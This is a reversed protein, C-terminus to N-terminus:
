MRCCVVVSLLLCCCVVVFLLLCCCVVVSLLLFCCVVVSLLLCFCVVVSLSVLDGSCLEAIPPGHSGIVPNRREYIM